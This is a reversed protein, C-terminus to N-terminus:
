TCIISHGSKCLVICAGNETRATNTSHIKRCTTILSHTLAHYIWHAATRECSAGVQEGGHTVSPTWECPAHHRPYTVAGYVCSYNKLGNCSVFNYASLIFTVIYANTNHKCTWPIVIVYIAYCAYVLNYVIYSIASIDKDPVYMNFDCKDIRLWIHLTIARSNILYCLHVCAIYWGRITM